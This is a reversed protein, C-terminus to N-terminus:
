MKREVIGDSFGNSSGGDTGSLGDVLPYGELNVDVDSRGDSSGVM